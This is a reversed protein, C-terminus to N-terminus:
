PQLFRLFILIGLPMSFIPSPTNPPQSFSVSIVNGASMVAILSSRKLSQVPSIFTTMGLEIVVIPVHAKAPHELRVVMLMGLNDLMIQKNAEIQATIDKLQTSDLSGNGAQIILSRIAQAADLVNNLAGDSYRLMTIANTTNQQYKDNANLASQVQLSRTIAAPNEALNTYKNGSAIQRQLDQIKRQSQNLSDMLSGYMTATTLRSYM